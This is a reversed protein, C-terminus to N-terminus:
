QMFKVFEIWIDTFKQSLIRFFWMDYSRTYQSVDIASDSITDLVTSTSKV